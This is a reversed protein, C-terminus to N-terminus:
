SRRNSTHENKMELVELGSLKALSADHKLLVFICICFALPMTQRASAHGARATRSVM